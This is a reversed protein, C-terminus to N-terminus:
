AGPVALQRAAATIAAQQAPADAFAQVGDHYAATAASPEGLVMRARMLRVWGDAHRPDTRLRAALGDVMTRIMASQDGPLAAAAIRLRKSIDEGRAAALRQVVGRVDSTWPAGAPASNLLAIWDTMAGAHDGHQDKATALFFRARPDGPDVALAAKFVAAAAGTVQGGSAQVLAEGQASNNDPNAPDLAAARGYADAADAYRRTQMYSWGLLAWGKPDGPSRRMKAELQVILGPLQGDPPPTAAVPRAGATILDPRGLQAYLLSASAAIVGALGVAFLVVSRGRIPRGPGESVPAEALFRRVAETRLGEAVDGPLAAAQGEIDALQRRLIADVPAEVAPARPGRVLPLTLGVAAVVIMAALVIWAIM